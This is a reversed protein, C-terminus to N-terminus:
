VKSYHTLGLVADERAVPELAAVVPEMTAGPQARSVGMGVLWVAALSWFFHWKM